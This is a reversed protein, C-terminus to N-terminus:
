HVKQRTPVRFAEKKVFDAINPFENKVREMRERVVKLEKEDEVLGQLLTGRGGPHTLSITLLAQGFPRTSSSLSSLTSLSVISLLLGM